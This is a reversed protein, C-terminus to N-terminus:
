NYYNFVNRLMRLIRVIRNRKFKFGNYGSIEYNRDDHQKLFEFTIEESSGPLNDYNYLVENVTNSKCILYKLFVVLDEAFECNFSYTCSQQYPTRRRQGRIVYKHEKKDYLIYVTTDIEKLTTDFEELKLVLCDPVIHDSM